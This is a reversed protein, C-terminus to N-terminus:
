LSFWSFLTFCKHTQHLERTAILKQRHVKLAISSFVTLEYQGSKFSNCIILGSIARFRVDRPMSVGLSNSAFVSLSFPFFSSAIFSLTESFLMALHILRAFSASSFPIPVSLAFRRLLAPISFMVSRALCFGAIRDSLSNAM